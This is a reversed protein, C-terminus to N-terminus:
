WFKEIWIPIKTWKKSPVIPAWLGFLTMQGGHTHGSLKLDILDSNLLEL